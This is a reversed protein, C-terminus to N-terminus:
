HRRCCRNSTTLHSGTLGNRASRSRCVPRQRRDGVVPRGVVMRTRRHHGEAARPRRVRRRVARPTRGGAAAEHVEDVGSQDVQSLVQLLEKALEPPEARVCRHAATSRRPLRCCEQEERNVGYREVLRETLLGMLEGNDGVNADTLAGFLGDVLTLDGYLQNKTRGSYLYRPVNSLAEVGGGIGISVEGLMIRRALSHIAAGGSACNEHFTTGPSTHPVGAAEAAIKAINPSRPDQIVWGMCTYEVHTPDLGASDLLSKIVITALDGAQLSSLGGGIAGIPTRVAGAIVVKKM